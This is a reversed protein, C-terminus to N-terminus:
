KVRHNVSSMMLGTDILPKDHGKRAITSPANPPDNTDLISQRIDAEITVGVEGLAERADYDHRELADALRQPYESEHAVVANRFFPRPPIGRSPEGFENNAAVQAVPTGDPYSKGDIFGVELESASNLRKEIARLEELFDDVGTFFTM